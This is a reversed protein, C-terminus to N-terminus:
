GNTFIVPLGMAALQAANLDGRNGVNDVLTLGQLKWTGRQSYRYVTATYVFTGDMNDGSVRSCLPAWEKPPCETQGPMPNYFSADVLQGATPSVFRGAAVLQGVTPNNSQATGSLDDTVRITFTITQDSQSTDIAKPNFDFAVVNPATVDECNSLSAVDTGSGDTHCPNIGSGGDFVDGGPGGYLSDDGADGHLTDNGRDGELVDNGDEATIIDNGGGGSLVNAGASGTINDSFASGVANEIRMAASLRITAGTSAGAYTVTDRGVGGALRDVASAVLTDNGAEGRIKDRGTSGDLRDNGPGGLETDAGTGGILRDNGAGGRLVDNGGRGFIKDNGGLGCIVDAKATGKLVDARATGKITCSTAASPQRAAAKAAATEPKTFAGAPAASVVLLASLLVLKISYRKLVKRM